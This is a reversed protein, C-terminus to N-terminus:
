QKEVVTFGLVYIPADWKELYAKYIHFPQLLKWLDGDLFLGGSTNLQVTKARLCAIFYVPILHLHM